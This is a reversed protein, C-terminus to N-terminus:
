HLCGSAVLRAMQRGESIRCLLTERRQQMRTLDCLPLASPMRVTVDLEAASSCM